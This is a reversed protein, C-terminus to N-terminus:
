YNACSGFPGEPLRPKRCVSACTRASREGVLFDNPPIGSGSKNLSCCADVMYLLRSPDLRSQPIGDPVCMVAVSALLPSTSPNAALGLARTRAFHYKYHCQPCAYFASQTSSLTRWQKLCKVHVYKWNAADAAFCRRSSCSM